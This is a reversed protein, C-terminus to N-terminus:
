AAKLEISEHDSPITATTSHTKYDAKNDALSKKVADNHAKAHAAKREPETEYRENALLAVAGAAAIVAKDIFKKEASLYSM